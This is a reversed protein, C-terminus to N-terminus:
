SSLDDIYKSKNSKNLNNNAGKQNNYINYDFNQGFRQGDELTRDM